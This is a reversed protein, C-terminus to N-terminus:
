REITYVAECLASWQGNHLVRARVHADDTLPIPGAYTLTTPSISPDVQPGEEASVLDVCLLFDSSTPSANMAHVALINEGPQLFATIDHQNYYWYM